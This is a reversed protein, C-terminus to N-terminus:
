READKHLIVPGLKERLDIEELGSLAKLKEQMKRCKAQDWAQQECILTGEQEQMNELMHRLIDFAHAGPLKDLLREVLKWWEQWSWGIRSWGWPSIKPQPFWNFLAWSLVRRDDAKLEASDRIQAMWTGLTEEITKVKVRHARSLWALVDGVRKASSAGEVMLDLLLRVLPAGVEHRKEKRVPLQLWAMEWHTARDAVELMSKAFWRLNEVHITEGRLIPRSDQVGRLLELVRHINEDLPQKRKLKSAPLPKPDPPATEPLPNAAESSTAPETEYRDEVGFSDGKYRQCRNWEGTRDVLAIDREALRHQAASAEPHDWKCAEGYWCEGTKIFYNCAQIGPRLPLRTSNLAPAMLVTRKMGVAKADEAGAKAAMAKARADSLAQAKAKAIATRTRALAREQVIRSAEQRAQKNRDFAMAQLSRLFHNLDDKDAFRALEVALTVLAKRRALVSMGLAKGVSALLAALVDEHDGFPASSRDSPGRSRETEGEGVEADAADDDAPLSADSSSCGSPVAEFGMAVDAVSGDALRLSAQTNAAKRRNNELKEAGGDGNVVDKTSKADGNERMDEKVRKYTQHPKDTEDMNDLNGANDTMSKSDAMGNNGKQSKKEKKHKKDKKVDKHSTDKKDSTVAKDKTHRTERAGGKEKKGKEDNWDSTVIADKTHKTDNEDREEAKGQKNKRDRKGRKGKKDKMDNSDSKFNYGDKNMNHDANSGDTDDKLKMPHDQEAHIVGRDDANAEEAHVSIDGFGKVVMDMRVEGAPAWSDDSTETRWAKTAKASMNTADAIEVAHDEGMGTDGGSRALERLLACDQSGEAGGGMAAIPPERVDAQNEEESTGDSGFVEAEEEYAWAAASAKAASGVNAAEDPRCLDEESRNPTGGALTAGDPGQSATVRDARDTRQMFILRRKSRRAGTEAVVAEACNRKEASEAGPGIASDM